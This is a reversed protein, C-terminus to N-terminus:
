VISFILLMFKCCDDAGCFADNVHSVPTSSDADECLPLKNLEMIWVYRAFQCTRTCKWRMSLAKTTVSLTYCRTSLANVTRQGDWVFLTHRANTTGSLYHIVTRHCLMPRGFCTIYSLANCLAVGESWEGLWHRAFLLYHTVTCQCRTPGGLCITYSLANITGSLYRKVTYSLRHCHIVTNCYIKMYWFACNEDVIEFM